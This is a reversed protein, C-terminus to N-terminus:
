EWVSENSFIWSFEQVHVFFSYSIHISKPIGCFVNGSLIITQMKWVKGDEFFQVHM